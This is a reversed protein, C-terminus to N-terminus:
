RNGDTKTRHAERQTSYFKDVEVSWKSDAFNPWNDKAFGPANKLSSKEVHLVYHDQKQTGSSTEGESVLTLNSWPVAFLKDGMGLFGGFSLVAYRIKGTAPNIALDEIKGLNEKDDNSVRVGILDKARTVRGESTDKAMGDASMNKDTDAQVRVGNRDVEVKATRGGQQTSYFKDVDVSWKSNAFDPWKDKEFGPANKLSAKDVQLVYHDLKKTGSSTEGESVWSLHSWPVAFLKDGMGLFGGFSLVAYRIRGTSPNIALDEIKGLNEKDENTVSLGILDKARAIRSESSEKTMAEKSTEKDKNAETHVRVGNRDVEVKTERKKVDDATQQGFSPAAQALIALSIASFAVTLFYHVRM